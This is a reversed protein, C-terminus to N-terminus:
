KVSLCLPYFRSDGTNYGGKDVSFIFAAQVINYRQVTALMRIRVPVNNIYQIGEARQTGAVTSKSKKYM